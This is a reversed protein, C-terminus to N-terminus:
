FNPLSGSTLFAMCDISEKTKQWYAYFFIRGLFVTTLRLDSDREFFIGYLWHKGKDEVLLAGRVEVIRYHAQPELKPHM